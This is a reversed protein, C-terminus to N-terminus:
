RAIQRGGGGRFFRDNDLLYRGFFGGSLHKGLPSAAGLLVSEEEQILVGARLYRGGSFVAKADIHFRRFDNGNPHWDVEGNIRWMADPLINWSLLVNSLGKTPAIEDDLVVRPRDFYYRQSLGVFFEERAERWRRIEFGYTLFNVDSVRDGGVYREHNFNNYANLQLAQTDFIPADDQKVVPAYAYALRFRGYGGGFFGALSPFRTETNLRFYPTGFSPRGGEKLRYQVAHWGFSPSFISDYWYFDRGVEGEWLWRDGTTQNDRNARFSAYEWATAWQYNSKEGIHKASLRPIVNHPPSLRSDLTKYDTAEASFQWGDKVYTWQASIPLNRKVLQENNDSFDKFYNSDSVNEGKFIINWHETGFHNELSLHHRKNKEWPTWAALFEGNANNTLYRFESALLLGSDGVWRPNITADYNPALHWYFPAAVALGDGSQYEVSPLLFGSRKKKNRSAFFYPVYFVPVGAIEMIMNRGQVGETDVEADDMLIRWDKKEKPCSSIEVTDAYIKDDELLVRKGSARLSSEEFDIVFNQMQGSKGLWYYRLSDGTLQHGKNDRLKVSGTARFMQMANDYQAQDACLTINERRIKVNGDAYIVGDKRRLFDAEIETAEEALVTAM